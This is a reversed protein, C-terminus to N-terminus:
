SVCYMDIAQQVPIFKLEKSDWVGLRRGKGDEIYIEEELSLKPTRRWLEVIFNEKYGYWKLLSFSVAVLSLVRRRVAWLGASACEFRSLGTYHDFHAVGEGVGKVYFMSYRIRRPAEADFGPVGLGALVLRFGKFGVRLGVERGGDAREQVVVRGWVVGGAPLGGRMGAGFRSNACGSELSVRGKELYERGRSTIAYVVSPSRPRGLREVLGLSLLQRLYYYLTRRPFRSRRVLDRVSLPMTSSALVRLIRLRREYGSAKSHPIPHTHLCRAEVFCIKGSAYVM